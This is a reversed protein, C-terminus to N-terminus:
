LKVGGGEEVREGGKGACEGKYEEGGVWDWSWELLELKGGGGTSAKMGEM